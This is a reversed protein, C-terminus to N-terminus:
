IERVNPGDLLDIWTGKYAGSYIKAFKRAKGAWVLPVVYSFLGSFGNESIKPEDPRTVTYGKAKTGSVKYPWFAGASVRFEGTPKETSTQVTGIYKKYTPYVCYTTSFRTYRPLDKMSKDLQAKTIRDFAPEEPRSSSNHNPDRTIFDYHTTNAHKQYKLALIAHAGYFNCQTRGGVEAYPSTCKGRWDPYTHGEVGVIVPGVAIKSAVFSADMGFAVSYHLGLKGLVNLLEVHNIGTCANENYMTGQQALYRIYSLSYTKEKYYEALMQVCTDTCCSSGGCPAGSQGFQYRAPYDLPNTSHALAM